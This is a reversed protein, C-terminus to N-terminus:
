RSVHQRMDEVKLFIELGGSAAEIVAQQAALEEQEAKQRLLYIDEMDKRMNEKHCKTDIVLEDLDGTNIIHRSSELTTEQVVSDEWKSDDDSVYGKSPQCHKDSSRSVPREGELLSVELAKPHLIDVSEQSRPLDLGVLIKCGKHSEKVSSVTAWSSVNGKELMLSQRSGTSSFDADVIPGQLYVNQHLFLSQESDRGLLTGAAEQTSSDTQVSSISSSNCMDEDENLGTMNPWTAAWWEIRDNGPLVAEERQSNSDDLGQGENPYMIQPGESVGTKLGGKWVISEENKDDCSFDTLYEEEDDLTVHHKNAGSSIFNQPHERAGYAQLSIM